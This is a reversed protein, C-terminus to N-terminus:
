TKLIFKAFPKKPSLIDKRGFGYLCKLAASFVAHLNIPGWRTGRLIFSHFDAPDFCEIIVHVAEYRLQKEFQFFDRFVDLGSIM